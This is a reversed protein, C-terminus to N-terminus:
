EFSAECEETWEFKKGKRQLSTISYAIQSFDRIFRRYYGVLGMFSRVEDVNKPALWEMIARMKKPDLTIGEKSVVHGLYHVETQFFSYKSINSYLQNERLLRLVAVLNEVHEEENKSYVLIDDFFVIVFKDLYLHLVNNMFCMFTTPANTLCFPVVVFENHMYRSRFTTKYTDDEKIHVQHYRSRLNIKSFIAARKLQAFLDDIRLLPYRNRIIVKNLQRYDICLRLTGDKKKVFLISANCPSLCPRIHGKDLM